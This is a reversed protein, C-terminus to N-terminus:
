TVAEEPIPRPVPDLRARYEGARTNTGLFAILGAAVLLVTGILFACQFGATLALSIDGGADLRHEDPRLRRRLPRRAWARRSRV